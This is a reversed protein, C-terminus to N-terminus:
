PLAAADSVSLRGHVAFASVVDGNDDDLMLVRLVIETEGLALPELDLTAITEREFSGEFLHGLDVASLSVVSAPLPGFNSLSFSSLDVGVIRAVGPDAVSIELKFGALGDTADYMTIAATANRGVTGSVSEIELRTGSAKPTPVVSDDTVVRAPTEFENGAVTMGQVAGPTAAADPTAGTVPTDDDKGCALVLLVPLAVAALTTKM